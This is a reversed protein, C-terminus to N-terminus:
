CDHNKDSPFNNSDITLLDVKQNKEGPIYLIVFNFRSLFEAM